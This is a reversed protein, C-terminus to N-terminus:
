GAFNYLPWPGSIFSGEIEKTLVSLCQRFDDLHARSVLYSLLYTSQGHFLNLEAHQQQYLGALGHNLAQAHQLAYEPV